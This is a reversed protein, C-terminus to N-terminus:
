SLRGMMRGLGVEEEELMGIETLLWVASSGSRKEGQKAGQQLPLKYGVAGPKWGQRMVQVLTPMRGCKGWNGGRASM